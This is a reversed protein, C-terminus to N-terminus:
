SNMERGQLEHCFIPRIERSTLHHHSTWLMAPFRMSGCIIDWPRVGWSVPLYVPIQYKNSYSLEAWFIICVSTAVFFVAVKVLNPGADERWRRIMATPGGSMSPSMQSNVSLAMKPHSVLSSHLSYYLILISKNQVDGSMGELHKMWKKLLAAMGSRWHFDKVSLNQLLMQPMAPQQALSSSLTSLKEHTELGWRTNNSQPLTDTLYWDNLEAWVWYYLYLTAEIVNAFFAAASTGGDILEIVMVEPCRVACM